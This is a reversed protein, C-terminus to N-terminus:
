VRNKTNSLSFSISFPKGLAPSLYRAVLRYLYCRVHRMYLTKVYYIKFLGGAHGTLIDDSAIPKKYTVTNQVAFSNLFILM